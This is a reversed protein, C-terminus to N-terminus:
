WNTNIIKTSKCKVNIHNYPCHRCKNGCCEGRKLHAIRTMVRYSTAPDIYFSEKRSCASEHLEEIDKLFTESQSLSASANSVLSSMAIYFKYRLRTPLIRNKTLLMLIVSKKSKATNVTYDDM